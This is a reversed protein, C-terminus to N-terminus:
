PVPPWGHDGDHMQDPSREPRYGQVRKQRGVMPVSRADFVLQDHEEVANTALLARREFCLQLSSLM